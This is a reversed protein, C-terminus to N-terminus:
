LLRPLSLSSEHQPTSAQAARVPAHLCGLIRTFHLKQKLPDPIPQPEANRVLRCSFASVSVSQLCSASSGDQRRVGDVDPFLSCIAEKEPVVRLDSGTPSGYLTTWKDVSFQQVTAVPLSGQCARLDIDPVDRPSLGPELFSAGPGAPPSSVFGSSPWPGEQRMGCCLGWLFSKVLPPFPPMATVQPAGTCRWQSISYNFSM